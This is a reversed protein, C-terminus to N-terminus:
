KCLEVMRKYALTFGALSYTDESTSGTKAVGRVRVKTGKRMASVIAKDDEKTKAWAIRPTETTTFLERTLRKEVALEVASNEKYPYGSSTSVESHGAGRYTVLMYPEGRKKYTGQQSSPRSSVYCVKQKDQDITFVTWSKFTAQPNPAAAVAPLCACLVILVVALRM